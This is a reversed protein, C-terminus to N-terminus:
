PALRACQEIQIKLMDIEKQQEQVTAILPVVLKAYDLSMMGNADTKVLEPFQQAVEQAIFGLDKTGDQKWAFQVPRLALLKAAMEQPLLNEIDQKLRLDSSYLFAAARVTGNVDLAYGPVATGIGVYGSSSTVVVMGAPANSSVKITNGTGTPPNGSPANLAVAQFTMWLGGLVVATGLVGILKRFLHTQKM